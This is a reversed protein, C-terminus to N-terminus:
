KLTGLGEDLTDCVTFLKTLQTKRLIDLVHPQPHILILKRGQAQTLTHTRILAGLGDSAIFSVGGLDVLVAGEADLAEHLGRELEEVESFGIEGSLSVM